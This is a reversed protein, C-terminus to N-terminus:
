DVWFLKWDTLSLQAVLNRWEEQRRPKQVVHRSFLVIRFILGIQPRSRASSQKPQKQKYRVELQTSPKVLMLKPLLNYTPTQPTFKIAHLQQVATWSSSLSRDIPRWPRVVLKSRVTTLTLAATQVESQRRTQAGENVRDSWYYNCILWIQYQSTVDTVLPRRELGLCNVALM